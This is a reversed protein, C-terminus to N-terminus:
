KTNNFSKIQEETILDYRLLVSETNKVNKEYEQKIEEYRNVRDLAVKKFVNQLKKPLGFVILVALSFGGVGLYTGKFASQLEDFSYTMGSEWFLFTAIVLFGMMVTSLMVWFGLLWFGSYSINWLQDLWVSTDKFGKRIEAKLEM